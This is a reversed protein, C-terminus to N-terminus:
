GHTLKRAHEQMTRWLSVRVHLAPFALLAWKV